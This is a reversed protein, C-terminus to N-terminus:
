VLYIYLSPVVKIVWEVKSLTMTLTISGHDSPTKHSQSNKNNTQGSGNHRTKKHAMGSFNDLILDFAPAEKRLDELGQEALRMRQQGEFSFPKTVVAVTLAGSEKAIKAVILDVALTTGDEFLVAFLRFLGIVAEHSGHVLLGIVSRM